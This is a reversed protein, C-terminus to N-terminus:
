VHTDLYQFLWNEAFNGNRAGFNTKQRLSGFEVVKPVRKELFFDDGVALKLNRNIKDLIDRRELDVRDRKIVFSNSKEIKYLANLFKHGAGFNPWKQGNESYNEALFDFNEFNGLLVLGSPSGALCNQFNQNKPRFNNQFHGFIVLNLYDSVCKQVCQLNIFSKEKESWLPKDM